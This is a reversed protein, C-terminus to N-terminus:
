HTGPQGYHMRGSLIKEHHRQSEKEWEDVTLVPVPAMINMVAEEEAEPFLKERISKLAKRIDSM